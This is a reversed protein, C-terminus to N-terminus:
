YNAPNHYHRHLLLNQTCDTVMGLLLRYGFCGNTSSNGNMLSIDQLVSSIFRHESGCFMNSCLIGVNFIL